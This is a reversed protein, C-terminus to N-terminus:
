TSYICRDFNEVLEMIIGSKHLISAIKIILNIKTIKRMQKNERPQCKKRHKAEVVCINGRLISLCFATVSSIEIMPDEVATKKLLSLNM